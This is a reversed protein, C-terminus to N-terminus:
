QAMPCGSDVEANGHFFEVNADDAIAPRRAGMDVCDVVGAEPLNGRHVGRPQEVAVLHAGRVAATDLRVRVELRHQLIRRDVHHIHRTVRVLVGVLDDGCGLRALMEDDLLRQAQRFLVQAPHHRRHLLRAHLRAYTELAAERALEQRELRDDVLPQNPLDMVAFHVVVVADARPVALVAPVGLLGRAAAAQERRAAVRHVRQQVAHARRVHHLHDAVRGLRFVPHELLVLVVGRRHRDQLELVAPQALHRRHDVAQLRVVEVRVEDAALAANQVVLKVGRLEAAQVLVDPALQARRQYVRAVHRVM